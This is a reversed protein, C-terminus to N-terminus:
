KDLNISNHWVSAEPNETRNKNITAQNLNFWNWDITKDKDMSTVDFYKWQGNIKLKSWAHPVNNSLNGAVIEAEIGAEECLDNFLRTYGSCVSLGKMASYGTQTDYKSTNNWDYATNKCVFEAIVKAKDLDTSKTTIKGNASLNAITNKLFKAYEEKQSASKIIPTNADSSDITFTENNYNIEIIDNEMRWYITGGLNKIISELYIYMVGGSNVSPLEEFYQGLFDFGSVYNVGNISYNPSNQKIKITNNKDSAVASNTASDWSVKFGLAELTTRAPLMDTGNIEKHKIIINQSNAYITNVPLTSTVITALLLSTIFKKM